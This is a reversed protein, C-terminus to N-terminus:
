NRIALLLLASRASVCRQGRRPAACRLRAMREVVSRISRAGRMFRQLGWSASSTGCVDFQDASLKRRVFAGM